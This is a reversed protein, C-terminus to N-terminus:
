MAALSAKHPAPASSSSSHSPEPLASAGCGQSAHCASASLAQPRKAHPWSATSAPVSQTPWFASAAKAVVSSGPKPCNLCHRCCQSTCPAFRCLIASLTAETASTGAGLASPAPPPLATGGKPATAARGNGGTSAGGGITAGGGVATRAAGATGAASVRLGRATTLLRAADLTFPEPGEKSWASSRWFCRLQRRFTAGSFATGVAEAGPFSFTPPPRSWCRLQPLPWRDSPVAASFTTRRRKFSRRAM